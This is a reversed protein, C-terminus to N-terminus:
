RALLAQQSVELGLRAKSIALRTQFHDPGLGIVPRAQIQQFGMIHAKLIELSTCDTLM